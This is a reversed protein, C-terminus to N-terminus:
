GDPLVIKDKECDLFCIKGILKFQALEGSILLEMLSRSLSLM